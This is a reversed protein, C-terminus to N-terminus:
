LPHSSHGCDRGLEGGLGRLRHLHLVVHKRSDGVHMLRQRGVCRNQVVIAERIAVGLLGRIKGGVDAEGYAVRVRCKFFGLYHDLLGVRYGHAVLPIDLGVGADRTSVGRAPHLQPAAGLAVERHAM